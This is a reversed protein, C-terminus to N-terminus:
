HFRGEMIADFPDISGARWAPALAGIGSCALAGVFVVALDWQVFVVNVPSWPLTWGWTKPEPGVLWGFLLGMALSLVAALLGIIMARVLVVYFVGSRSMGMVRLIGITGRKRDTSDVLVSVVTVVGFFFVGVAVVIVLLQLSQDQTQIEAIRTSESLVAYGQGALHSVAAPVGDITRTYLRAKDFVVPEPLPAFVRGTSDYQAQGALHSHIWALLNAPVVLTSSESELSEKQAPHHEPAVEKAADVVIAAEAPPEGSKSDEKDPSPAEAAPRAKSMPESKWTLPLVVGDPLMVEVTEEVTSCGSISQAQFPKAQSAEFGFGANAIALYDHIWGGTQSISPLSLGVLECTKGAVNAKVPANWRLVFDDIAQTNEMIFMPSVRLPTPGGDPSRQKLEYVKLDGLRGNVLLGGLSKKSVETVENCAMGREELFSLDDPQLDTQPGKQCFVLYTYYEDRAALGQIAPLGHEAVAYGRVYQEISKLLSLHAYGTQSGDGSAPTIAAVRGLIAHTEEVSERRRRLRLQVEDKVRVNLRDAVTQSLVVGATGDELVDANFQALVPDNRQTSYLTVLEPEADTAVTTRSTLPVIEVMRQAEPIILDTEPVAATLEELAVADLLKGGQASWFVIQRGSPSTLLDKRLEAVHGRKLGLLLLIPLCIGAIIVIQHQTTPWLRVIDRWALLHYFFWRRM